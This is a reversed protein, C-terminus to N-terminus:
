APNRQIQVLLNLGVSLLNEGSNTKMRLKWTRSGGARVRWSRSVDSNPEGVGDIVFSEINDAGGGGGIRNAEWTGSLLIKSSSGGTADEVIEWTGEPNIGPTGGSKRTRSPTLEIDMAMWVVMYSNAQINTLNLTVKDTMTTSNVDVQTSFGRFLGSTDVEKIVGGSQVKFGYPTLSTDVYTDGNQIGATVAAANGAHEGLYRGQVKAETLTSTALPGQNIVNLATGAATRILNEAYQTAGDTSWLEDVRAVRNFPTFRLDEVGSSINDAGTTAVHVRFARSATTAVTRLLTSVGASERYYRVNVGDYTVTFLDGMAVLIAAGQPAGGEYLQIHPLSSSSFLYFAYDIHVYGADGLTYSDSLGFMTEALGGSQLRRASASAGGVYWQRSYASGTTWTYGGSAKGIRNGQITVHADAAIMSLDSTARDSPRTAGTVVAFDSSTATPAQSVINLATGQDTRHSARTAIVNDGPLGSGPPAEYIGEGFVQDGSRPVGVMHVWYPTTMNVATGSIATNNLSVSWGNEWALSQSTYGIQV